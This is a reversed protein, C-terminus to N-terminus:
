AARALDTGIPDSCARDRRNPDFGASAATLPKSGFWHLNGALAAV